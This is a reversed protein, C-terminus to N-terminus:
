HRGRHPRNDHRGWSRTDVTRGRFDRLTATDGRHDWVDTRQNLYLDNRDTRGYGSHVTVSARPALRFNGLRFVRHHKRETLTYGRLSVSHRSRNTLRIWENNLGGHHNRGQNDPQVGSIAVSRAFPAAPASHPAASAPLAGAALVAGTALVAAAFRNMRFPTRFSTRLSM